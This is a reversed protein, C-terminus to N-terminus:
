FQKEYAKEFLELHAMAKDAYGKGIKPVRNRRVKGPGANYAEFAKQFDGNFNKLYNNFIRTGIRINTTPDFIDGYEKPTLAHRKPDIQMLGLEGGKGVTPIYGASEFSVITGIAAPNVHESEAIKIILPMLPKLIDESSVQADKLYAFYGKQLERLGDM